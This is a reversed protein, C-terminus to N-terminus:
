ISVYLVVAFSKSDSVVDITAPMAKIRKDLAKLFRIKMDDPYEECDCLMEVMLKSKVKNFNVFVQNCFMHEVIFFLAEKYFFFLEHRLKMDLALSQVKHDVILDIGTEYDVRMGETLEKLRLVLKKMSDNAPDITWLTDLAQAMHRSKDSIQDIFDKAQDVNKDAKIKAIESLVNINNLNNSVENRLNLRIQRRIDRLSNQKNMRERDLM